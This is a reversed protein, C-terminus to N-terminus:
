IQVVTDSVTIRTSAVSVYSDFVYTGTTRATYIGAVTPSEQTLAYIIAGRNAGDETDFYDCIGTASVVVNQPLYAILSAFNTIPTASSSIITFYLSGNMYNLTSTQPQAMTVKVFHRYSNSVTGVDSLLAVNNGNYTPRTQMGRLTLNFASHGVLVNNGSLGCVTATTSGSSTTANIRGNTGLQIGNGDNQGIKIEGTMTGGALPLYKKFEATIVRNQVPNPSTSSMATDIDSGPLEVDETTIVNGNSLTIRFRINSGETGGIVEVNTISVGQPGQQGQAGNTVTFTTTAGNTYTITYTDVLGSTGTKTIASIGNGTDGKSGTAGPPLEVDESVIVQGNSLTVRFRIDSGETGGIVEVNTISTGQSGQPGTLNMQYTLTFTWVGSSFSRGTIKYVYGNPKSIVFDGLQVDTSYNDIQSSTVSTTTTSTLTLSTTYYGYGRPGQSGTDGMPLEVDETTIVQGDSLTVQFRIDSGETGGIVEVNSISVGQEGKISFKYRCAVTTEAISEIYYVRGNQLVVLDGIAVTWGDPVSINAKSLNSIYNSTSTSSSQYYICKGQAGTDGKSGTAGMPLEVDDTTIEEGDSLTIRFRIDSGETGGIVEVNSISTGQAGTAGTAGPPGQEGQEGNTVTFTTTTGDTYTITYTDVLGSTSTKVISGIGNGTEGTDGKISFKYRCAVTRDAVSEIYYVRGNQLVVLDGISVTWGDPVSINAKSLNSIYNSTSTSSSQYYFSKGQAGEVVDGDNNSVDLDGLFMIRANRWGYVTGVWVASGVLADRAGQNCPLTLITEDGVLQVSAVLQGDSNLYPATTVVAKYLRLCAGTKRDIIDAVVPRLAQKLKESETMIDM